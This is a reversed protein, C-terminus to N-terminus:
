MPPYEYVSDCYRCTWKRRNGRSLSVAIKEMSDRANQRARDLNEPPCKELSGVMDPQGGLGAGGLLVGGMSNLAEDMSMITADAGINFVRRCKPCELRHSM